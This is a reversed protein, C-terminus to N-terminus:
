EVVQTISVPPTKASVARKKTISDISANWIGLLGLRSGLHFGTPRVHGSANEPVVCLFWRGRVNKAKGLDVPGLPAVVM